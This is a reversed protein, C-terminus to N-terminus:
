IHKQLWTHWSPQIRVQKRSRDLVRQPGRIVHVSTGRANVVHCPRTSLATLGSSVLFFSTVSIVGGSREPRKRETKIPIQKEAGPVTVHACLLFVRLPLVTFSFEALVVKTECVPDTQAQSGYSLQLLRQLILVSKTQIVCM